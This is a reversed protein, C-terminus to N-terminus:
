FRGLDNVDFDKITGDEKKSKPTLKLKLTQTAAESLNGSAEASFVALRFGGKAAASKTAVIKLEVEVDGILLVMPADKGARQAELLDSRLKELLESLGLTGGDDKNADDTM